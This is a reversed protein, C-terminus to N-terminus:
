SIDSGCHKCKIAEARIEEACFPCRKYENVAVATAIPTMVPESLNEQISPFSAFESKYSITSFSEGQKSAKLVLTILLALTVMSLLRALLSVTVAESYSSMAAILAETDGSPADTIEAGTSELFRSSAQSSLNDLIFLVWWVNLLGTLSKFGRANLSESLIRRPRVLNMFPVFWSGIAWGTSHSLADGDIEEALKANAHTWGITAAISLVVAAVYPWVVAAFSEEHSIMQDAFLDASIYDESNMAIIWGQIAKQYAFESFTSYTDFVLAIAGAVVVAIKWSNLRSM